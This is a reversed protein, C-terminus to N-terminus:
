HGHSELKVGIDCQLKITAIAQPESAKYHKKTLNIKSVLFNFEDVRVSNHPLHYFRDIKVDFILSM